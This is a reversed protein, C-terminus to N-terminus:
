TVILKMKQGVSQLGPQYLGDPLARLPNEHSHSCINAGGRKGDGSLLAKREERAQEQSCIVTGQLTLLFGALQIHKSVQVLIGTSVINGM